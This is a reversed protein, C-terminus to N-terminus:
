FKFMSEKSNKIDGFNFALQEDSLSDLQTQTKFLLDSLKKVDAEKKIKEEKLVNLQNVVKKKEEPDINLPNENETKPSSWDSQGNLIKAKTNDQILFFYLLRMRAFM